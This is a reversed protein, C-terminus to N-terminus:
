NSAWLRADWSSNETLKNDALVFAKAQMKTLHSLSITPVIRLGLKKAPRRPWHGAVIQAQGDILVPVNFGFARISLRSRVFKNSQISAPIRGSQVHASRDPALSGGSSCESWAWGGSSQTHQTKQTEGYPM